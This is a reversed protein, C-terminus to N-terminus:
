RPSGKSLYQRLECEQRKCRHCLAQDSNRLRWFLGACNMCVARRLLSM